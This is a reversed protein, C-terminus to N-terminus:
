VMHKVPRHVVAIPFVALRLNLDIEFNWVVSHFSKRVHYSATGASDIKSFKDKLNSQKVTHAFVAEAM